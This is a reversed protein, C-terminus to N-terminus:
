WVRHTEINSKQFLFVITQDYFPWRDRSMAKGHAGTIKSVDVGNLCEFTM